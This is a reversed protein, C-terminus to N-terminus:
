KKHPVLEVAELTAPGNSAGLPYLGWPNPGGHVSIQVIGKQDTMLLIEVIRNKPVTIVGDIIGQPSEPSVGKPRLRVLIKAATGGIKLRLKDGKLFDTITALDLWGSGWRSSVGTEGALLQAGTDASTTLVLVMLILILGFGVLCSKLHSPRGM